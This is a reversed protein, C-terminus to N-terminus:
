GGGGAAMPTPCVTKHCSTSPIIQHKDPRRKRLRSFFRTPPGSVLRRLLALCQCPFSSRERGLGMLHEPSLCKGKVDSSQEPWGQHNSLGTNGAEQCPSGYVQFQGGATADLSSIMRPSQCSAHQMRPNLRLVRLPKKYECHQPAPAHPKCLLRESQPPSQLAQKRGYELTGLHGPRVMPSTASPVLPHRCVCPRCGRPLRAFRVEACRAGGSFPGIMRKAAWNNGTRAM